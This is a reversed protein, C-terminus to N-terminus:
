QQNILEHYEKPLMFLSEKNRRKYYIVADILEGGQYPMKNIIYIDSHVPQDVTITVSSEEVNYRITFYRTYVSSGTIAVRHIYAEAILTIVWRYNYRTILYEVGRSVSYEGKSIFSPLESFELLDQPLERSIARVYKKASPM